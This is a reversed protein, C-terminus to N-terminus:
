SKFDRERLEVYSNSLEELDRNNGEIVTSHLRIKKLDKKSLDVSDEGDTILMIEAKEFGEPDSTIDKVATRLANSISTGGGSYPQRILTDMMKEAEKENTVTNLQKIGHDFFRLFYTSGETVAQRVFALAVGSAYVNRSGRMSGSVDILLYLVQRKLRRAQYDKIQLEKKVFKQMFVDDDHIFETPLVRLLENSDEINKITMEDDPYPVSSIVEDRRYRETVEKMRAVYLIDMDRERVNRSIKDIIEMVNHVKLENEAIGANKNLYKKVDNKDFIGTAIAKEIKPLSQRFKTMDIPLNKEDASLGQKDQTNRRPPRPPQQSQNGDGGQQQQQGSGKGESNGGQGKGSQPQSQKKGQQQKSKGPSDDQDEESNGDESNNEKGDGDGEGQGQQGDQKDQGDGDGQSSQQQDGQGQQSQDQKSNGQGDGNQDQQSEQNESDNGQGQGPQPQNPPPPPQFMRLFAELAEMADLKDLEYFLKSTIFYRFFQRVRSYFEVNKMLEGIKFRIFLNKVDKFLEWYGKFIGRKSIEEAFLAYLDEAFDTSLTFDDVVVSEDVMSAIQEKIQKKLKTKTVRM